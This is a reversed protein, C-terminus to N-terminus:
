PRSASGAAPVCSSVVARLGAVDFLWCVALHVAGGLPVAVALATPAPLGAVLPAVVGAMALTGALIGAVDRLAPRARTQRSAIMAFVAFGAAMGVTFGWAHGLPGMRGAVVADFVLNVALSVLAPITVPLTRGAIQFSPAVAFIAVGWLVLGPLLVALTAAFAGKFATSVFVAEFAPLVMWFGAGAPVLVALTAAMNRSLQQQSAAPGARDHARVALQFLVVDLAPGLVAIIRVGIDHALAFKGAEALGFQSAVAGRLYFAQLLAIGGAAVIPMGYAAFRRMEARSALSLRAAPDLLRTRAVAVALTLALAGATLVAEPECWVLAVGLMLGLALAHRVAMLGALTRDLNRARALAAHYDFCAGFVTYIAALALLGAARDGGVLAEIVALAVVVGIASAAVADLSSRIAPNTMRTSDSYFRTAAHRLWEILPITLVGAAAVAVAFAGFPAPGLFRALLLGLAFNALSNLLVSAALSM